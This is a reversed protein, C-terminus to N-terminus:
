FGMLSSGATNAAICVSMFAITSTNSSTGAITTVLSQLAATVQAATPGQSALGATYNDLMKVGAAVLAAQNSAVSGTSVVSYTKQMLSNTGGTTLDSCAGYVVLQVADFGTAKTPDTVSPMNGGSANLAKLFNGKLPNVNNELGNTIRSVVAPGTPMQFNGVGPISSGGGAASQGGTSSLNAKAPSGMDCNQFFPLVAAIAGIVMIKRLNKNMKM